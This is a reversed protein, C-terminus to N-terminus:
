GHANLSRLSAICRDRPAPPDAGAMEYKEIMMSARRLISRVRSRSFGSSRDDALERLRSRTASYLPLNGRPFKEFLDEPVGLGRLMPELERRGGAWDVEPELRAITNDFDFIWLKRRVLPRPKRM